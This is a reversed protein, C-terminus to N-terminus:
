DLNYLVYKTTAPRNREWGVNKTNELIHAINRPFWVSEQCKEAQGM